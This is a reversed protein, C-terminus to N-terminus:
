ARKGRTITGKVEGKYGALCIRHDRISEDWAEIPFRAGTEAIHQKDAEEDDGRATGIFAEKNDVIVIGIIPGGM